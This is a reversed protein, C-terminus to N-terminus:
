RWEDAYRDLDDAERVTVSAGPHRQQKVQAFLCADGYSDFTTVRCEVTLSRSAPKTVAVEWRKTTM